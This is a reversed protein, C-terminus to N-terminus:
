RGMATSREVGTSSIGGGDARRGRAPRRLVEHVRALVDFELGPAPRELVGDVRRSGADISGRPQREVSASTKIRRLSDRSAPGESAAGAAGARLVEKQSTTLVAAACM